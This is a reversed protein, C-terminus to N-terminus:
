KGFLKAFAATTAEMKEAVKELSTILDNLKDIDLNQLNEAAGSLSRIGENVAGIDAKSLTEAADGLESIAHDITEMDIKNLEGVVQEMSDITANIKELDLNNVQRIVGSIMVCAFIGVTLIIALIAGLMGTQIRAHRLQLAQYDRTEVEM